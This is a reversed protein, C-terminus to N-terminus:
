ILSATLQKFINSILGLNSSLMSKFSVREKGLFDKAFIPNQITIEM